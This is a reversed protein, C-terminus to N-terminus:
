YNKWTKGSLISHITGNHVNFKRAIESNSLGDSSMKRILPIDEAFLKKTAEELNSKVRQVVGPIHQWRKGVRIDYITSRGVNFLSAIEINTLGEKFLELIHPIDESTLQALGHADGRAASLKRVESSEESCVTRPMEMLRPLNLHKWTKGIRLSYITSSHVNFLKAISENSSDKFEDSLIRIADAESLIARNHEEGKPVLNNFMAHDINQRNTVWELNSVVNNTKCGDIHNVQDLSNPNEIFAKAVLRHVRATKAKGSTYLRFILYGEGDKALQIIRKQLGLVNGLNSIRYGTNGIDKWIEM